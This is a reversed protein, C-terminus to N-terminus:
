EELSQRANGGVLEGTQGTDIRQRNLQNAGAGTSDVGLPQLAENAGILRDGRQGNALEPGPRTYELERENTVQALPAVNQCLRSRM